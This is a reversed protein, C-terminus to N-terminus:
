TNYDIIVEKGSISKIIKQLLIIKDSFVSMNKAIDSEFEKLANINEIMEGESKSLKNEEEEIGLEIKIENINKQM